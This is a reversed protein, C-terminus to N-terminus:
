IAWRIGEIKDWVVLFSLSPSGTVISGAVFVCIRLMARWRDLDLRFESRELDSARAMDCSSNKEEESLADGIKLLSVFSCYRLYQAFSM